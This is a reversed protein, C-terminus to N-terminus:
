LIYNTIKRKLNYNEIKSRLFKTPEHINFLKFFYLIDSSIYTEYNISVGVDFCILGSSDGIIGMIM